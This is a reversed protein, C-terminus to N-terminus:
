GKLARDILSKNVGYKGALVQRTIERPRYAQRIKEIDVPKLRSQTAAGQARSQKNRWVPNGREIMDQVNQQQTGPYLHSPNICTKNDCQHLVFLHDDFDGIFLLYSERHAKTWKSHSSIRYQGYGDKDKQGLWNWCGSVQDLKIKSLLYTKSHFDARCPM